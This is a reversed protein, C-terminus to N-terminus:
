DAQGVGVNYLKGDRLIEVKDVFVEKNNLPFYMGKDNFILQFHLTKLQNPQMTPIFVVYAGNVWVEVDKWEDTSLNVIELKNMSYGVQARAVAEGGKPADAPYPFRTAADAAFQASSKRLEPDSNRILSPRGSCGILGMALTGAVVGFVLGSRLNM